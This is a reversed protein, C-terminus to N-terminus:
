IKILGRKYLKKMAKYIAFEDMNTTSSGYVNRIQLLIDAMKKSDAEALFKRIKKTAVRRM